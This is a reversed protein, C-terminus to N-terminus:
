LLLGLYPRGEIMIISLFCVWPPYLNYGVSNYEVASAVETIYYQLVCHSFSLVAVDWCSTKAYPNRKALARYFTSQTSNIMWDAYWIYSVGMNFAYSVSNTAGGWSDWSLLVPSIFNVSAAPAMEFFPQCFWQNAKNKHYSHITM